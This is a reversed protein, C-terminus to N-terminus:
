ELSQRSIHGDDSTTLWSLRSDMAENALGPNDFIPFWWSIQLRSIINQQLTLYLEVSICLFVPFALAFFALFIM